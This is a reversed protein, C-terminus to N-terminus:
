QCSLQESPAGQSPQKRWSYFQVSMTIQPAVTALLLRRSSRRGKMPVMTTLTIIKYIIACTLLISYATMHSATRRDLMPAVQAQAVAPGCIFGCLMEDKLSINYESLMTM